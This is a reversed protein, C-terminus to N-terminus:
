SYRIPEPALSRNPGGERGRTWIRTV